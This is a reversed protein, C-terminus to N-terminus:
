GGHESLLELAAINLIKIDRGSVSVIRERMFASLTRIANHTTMNSLSALDARTAKISLTIGDADYGYLAILCLLTDALRGRMHKQTLSLTLKESTELDSSLLDLFYRGVLPNRDILENLANLPLCIVQSQEYALVDALMVAGAFFSRVGFFQEPGLMRALPMKGSIGQRVVKIKGSLIIYVYQMMTGQSIVIDGRDYTQIKAEKCLLSQEFGDVLVGWLNSLHSAIIKKKREM